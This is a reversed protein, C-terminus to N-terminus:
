QVLDFTLLVNELPVAIVDLHKLLMKSLADLVFNLLLRLIFYLLKMM